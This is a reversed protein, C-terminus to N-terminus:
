VSQPTQNENEELGEEALIEEESTQETMINDENLQNALQQTEAQEFLQANPKFVQYGRLDVADNVFEALEIGSIHPAVIQGIPSNLVGVLNQLDTAKRSFHRAGVPRIIGNAQIDDKTIEQFVQVGLDRDTVSILDTRNMNQYATKLMDNLLKELFLEFQEVKEQFIRGAANDLTQVEFATKEGPSRIGMAERPAGAYLEMRAEIQEIIASANIIGSFDQALETVDGGEDITIEEGPGWQFEEVSGTIKLPPMIKLDLSNAMMNQYHDLMYQLGVLNDLPGMAWLNDPRKRWGVMSIQDRGDPTPIPENRVVHTRDVVTLIRNKHLNKGDYYDGYFELIEVTNSQYYEWLSGFGDVMYQNEKEFDDKSVAGSMAKKITQRKKVVDEWFKNEPSQEALKLLGGLTKLKRIIKPSDEFSIATPNFRIDYPSIRTAKPGIFSAVREEDTEKYIEEYRPKAFAVGYDIYDYLLQSTTDRFGGIRTKNEMYAQIGESKKKSAAKKDYAAWTLWRDNPFLSSIYNSHLNDRIQTLKPLTSTHTWPLSKNSTTSTDTAFIYESTEKWQAKKKAMQNDWIDWLSSVWAAVDEQTIFRQIEAVTAM